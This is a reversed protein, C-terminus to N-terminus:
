RGACRFGLHGTPSDAAVPIRAAPRYRSCYDDSCLFSGGKAVSLVPTSTSPGCCPAPRPHQWATDVLEWVNGTMDLLGLENPAHRGPPVPHAGALDYWPFAGRFVHAPVAGDPAREDGWTYAAGSRGARAAHEWETESPLRLGAWACFALADALTVHVVPEHQTAPASGPGSPQRWSAAPVFSWWGSPDRLDVPGRPPTFVNSGPPDATEASTRHGTATVFAAFQGVSVPERALRFGATIVPRAPREEPYHRDSGLLTTGGPVDLLVIGAAPPASSSRPM